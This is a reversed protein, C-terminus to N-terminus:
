RLAPLPSLNNSGKTITTQSRRTRRGERKKPGFLEVMKQNEISLEKAKTSKM